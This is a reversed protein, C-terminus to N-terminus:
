MDRLMLHQYREFEKAKEIMQIRFVQPTFPSTIAKRLTQIKEQLELLDGHRLSLEFGTGLSESHWPDREIKSRM